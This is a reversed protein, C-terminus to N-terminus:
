NKLGHYAELANRLKLTEWPGYICAFRYVETGWKPNMWSYNKFQTPYEDGHLTVSRWLSSKFLIMILSQQFSVTWSAGVHELPKEAEPGSRAEIAGTSSM